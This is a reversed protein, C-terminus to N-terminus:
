VHARGIQGLRTTSNSGKTSDNQGVQQLFKGEPSFKLIQDGDNNGGVWVNGDGDVHIGHENKVWPAGQAPGWSALLNGDTDFKLVAPAASCCNTEPLNKQAGKEDDLLTAPRHM